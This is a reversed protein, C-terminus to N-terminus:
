GAVGLPDRRPLGTQRPGLVRDVGSRGFVQERTPHPESLLESDTAQEAAMRASRATAAWEAWRGAAGLPSSYGQETRVIRVGPRALWRAILATEEILAGGHPGAEPLVTEAAACLADVVPMPPVGRSACGAAALRGRRIVALHWGHDGDPRAAVLEPLTTLARLRQGRWLVDITAAARDRMRAATEYRHRRALEAIHALMAQLPQGDRGDILALASRVAAAYTDADLGRAAPCPAIEREPCKVGHVASRALRATCIRVGTFRAILDGADVADARTRFPGVATDTRPARVASFRPFPEDTLTLWWWRHPFKSRRNYPPAHAALLRLERVGAELDHACEVHDVATALSAMEKIRTRPDAGNFYQTVRRRLDVATGVYLVEHAPGRFLYVGPSRPLARALHRNGRQAPTVDPLYSRLEPYTHIGQNGVREILGHLVDVTARADDLARHTPRTSAGFLQALASLRVSPAEDRTLVRRALRVTCLVPPRPWPVQNREAAARLFGVDFGANHAVLVAGRCFELFSPLVAEIRPADYVMASTIGTLAVIQPPIARGPDVLTAFEGLVEGGRVKVAGIETIADHRDGSARGGTTELDVVVFTTERLSLDALKDVDGFSLQGM